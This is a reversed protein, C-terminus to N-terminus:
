ETITGTFLGEAEDFLGLELPLFEYPLPFPTYTRILETGNFHLGHIDGGIGKGVIKLEGVWVNFGNDSFYLRKGNWTGQWFTTSTMVLQEPYLGDKDCDATPVIKWTGWVPGSSDAGFNGKISFVGVGTTRPDDTTMCSWFVADRFHLRGTTSDACYPLGSDDQM